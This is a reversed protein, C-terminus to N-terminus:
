GVTRRGRPECPSMGGMCSDDFLSRDPAPRRSVARPVTLRVDLATAITAAPAAAPSPSNTDLSIGPVVDEAAVVTLEVDVDGGPEEVSDDWRVEVVLASAPVALVVVGAVVAAVVGVVGVVVAGVAVM